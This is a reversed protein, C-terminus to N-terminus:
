IEDYMVLIFEKTTFFFYPIHCMLICSYISIAMIPLVGPLDGLSVLLDVDIEDGFMFVGCFGVSIFVITFVSYALGSAQAFRQM